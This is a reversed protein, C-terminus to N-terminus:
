PRLVLGFLWSLLDVMAAGRTARSQNWEISEPELQRKFNAQREAERQEEEQRRQSSEEGGQRVWRLINELERADFWVGHERCSDLIEGSRRGFNQRHMLADCIPCKRYFSPDAPGTDSITGQAATTPLASEPIFASRVRDLILEFDSTGLWLGACRPCELVTTDLDGLRRSTLKTARACAPCTHLSPEGAMHSPMLPTACHHCFRARDSVRAMCRPCITHLDREHLTFDANCFGCSETGELRPAGCSSCRVVDVDHPEATPVVLTEGCMCHFRSGPSLKGADYQRNCDACAVLLRM